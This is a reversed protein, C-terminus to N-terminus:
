RVGSGLRDIDPKSPVLGSLRTRSQDATFLPVQRITLSACLAETRRTPQVAALRAFRSTVCPIAGIRGLM